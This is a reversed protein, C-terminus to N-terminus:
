SSCGGHPFVPPPIAQKPFGAPEAQQSAGLRRRRKLHGENVGCLTQSKEAYPLHDLLCCIVKSCVSVPSVCLRGMQRRCYSVCFVLEEALEKEVDIACWPLCLLRGGSWVLGASLSRGSRHTWLVLLRSILRCERCCSLRDRICM